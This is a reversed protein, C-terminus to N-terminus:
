ASEITNNTRIVDIEIRITNVDQAKVSLEKVKGIPKITQILNKAVEQIKKDRCLFFDIVSNM